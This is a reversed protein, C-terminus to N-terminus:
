GNEKRMLYNKICWVLSPVGTVILFIGLYSQYELIMFLGFLISNIIAICIMCQFLNDYEKKM